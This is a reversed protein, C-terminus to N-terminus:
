DNEELERVQKENYNIIFSEKTKSCSLLENLKSSMHFKIHEECLRIENGEESKIKFSAKSRSRGLGIITCFLCQCSDRPKVGINEGSM